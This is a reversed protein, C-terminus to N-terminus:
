VLSFQKFYFQNNVYFHNPTLYGVFTSIGHFGVFGVLVIDLIYTNFPKPMIYRVTTSIGYFEVLWIDIIRNLVLWQKNMTSYTWTNSNSRLLEIWCINRDLKINIIQKCM